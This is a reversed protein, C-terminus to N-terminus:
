QHYRITSFRTPWSLREGNWYPFLDRSIQNLFADGSLTAFKKCPSSCGSSRFDKSFCGFKQQSLSFFIVAQSLGIPFRFAQGGSLLPRLTV